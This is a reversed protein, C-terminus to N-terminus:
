YLYFVISTSVFFSIFYNVLVCILPPPPSKAVLHVTCADCPACNIYTRQQTTVTTTTTSMGRSTHFQLSPGGHTTRYRSPLLSCAGTTHSVGLPYDLPHIFSLFPIFFSLEDM